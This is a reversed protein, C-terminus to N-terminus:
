PEVIEALGHDVLDKVFAELDKRLTAEDVDYEELIAQALQELDKLDLLHKWALAGVRNLAYYTGTSVDLLVAESHVEQILLDRRLSVIM